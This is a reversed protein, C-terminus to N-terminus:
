STAPRAITGHRSYIKRRKFKPWCRQWWKKNKKEEVEYVDVNFYGWESQDLDLWYLEVLRTCIPCNLAL